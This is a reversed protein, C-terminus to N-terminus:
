VKFRGRGSQSKNGNQSKKIKVKRKPKNQLGLLYAQWEPTDSMAKISEAYQRTKATEPTSEKAEILINCPTLLIM